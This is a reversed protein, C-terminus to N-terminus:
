RLCHLCVTRATPYMMYMYCSYAIGEVTSPLSNNCTVHRARLSFNGRRCTPVFVFMSQMVAFDCNPLRTYSEVRRTYMVSGNGIICENRTSTQCQPVMQKDCLRQFCEDNRRFTDHLVLAHGTYGLAYVTM